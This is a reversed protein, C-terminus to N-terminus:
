GHLPFAFCALDHPYSSYSESDEPKSIKIAFSATFMPTCARQPQTRASVHSSLKEFQSRCEGHHLFHQVVRSFERPVHGVMGIVHTSLAEAFQDHTDSANYRQHDGDPNPLCGFHSAPM